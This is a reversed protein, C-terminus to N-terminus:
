RQRKEESEAEIGAAIDPPITFPRQYSADQRDWSGIVFGHPDRNWATADLDIRLDM